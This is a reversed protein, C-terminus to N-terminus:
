MGAAAAKKGSAPLANNAAVKAYWQGSEKVTRKQMKFDVYVLGFRKTYGEAWEFNDLLSWAHYGRVDAGQQIARALEHLYDRYYAIRRTDSDVGTKGPADGYACGNETIEIPRKYDKHIRM